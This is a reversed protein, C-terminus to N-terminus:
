IIMRWFIFYIHNTSKPINLDLTAGKAHNLTVYYPFFPIWYTTVYASPCNIIFDMILVLFNVLVLFSFRAIFNLGPQFHKKFSLSKQAGKGKPSFNRCKTLKESLRPVLKIQSSTVSWLFLFMATEVKWVAPSEVDHILNEVQRQTCVVKVM